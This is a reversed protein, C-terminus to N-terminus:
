VQERSRNASSLAAAAHATNGGDKFPFGIFGERETNSAVTVAAVNAVVAVAIGL